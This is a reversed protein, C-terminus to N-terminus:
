ESYSEEDEFRGALGPLLLFVAGIIERITTQRSDAPDVNAISLLVGVGFAISFSCAAPSIRFLELVRRM